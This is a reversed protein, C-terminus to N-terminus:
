GATWMAPVDPLGAIRKLEGIRKGFALREGLVVRVFQAGSQHGVGRFGGVAPGRWSDLRAGNEVKIVEAGLFALLETAYTGAWAQTLM